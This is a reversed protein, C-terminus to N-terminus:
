LILLIMAVNWIAAACHVFSFVKAFQPNGGKEAHKAYMAQGIGLPVAVALGLPNAEVLGFAGIGLATSGMDAAMCSWVPQKRPPPPLGGHVKVIALEVYDMRTGDVHTRPDLPMQPLAEYSEGEATTVKITQPPTTACGTLLLVALLLIRM